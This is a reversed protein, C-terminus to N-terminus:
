LLNNCDTQLRTAPVNKKLPSSPEPFEDCKPITYAQPIYEASFLCKGPTVAASNRIFPNVRGIDFKLQAQM